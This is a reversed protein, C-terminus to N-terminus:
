EDPLNDIMELLKDMHKSTVSRLALLRRIEAIVPKHVEYEIGDEYLVSLLKYLHERYIDQKTPEKPKKAPKDVHILYQKVWYIGQNMNKPRAFPRM